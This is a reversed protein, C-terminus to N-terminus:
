HLVSALQREVALGTQLSRLAGMSSVTANIVTLSQIVQGDLDNQISTLLAPPIGGSGGGAMSTQIYAALSGLDALVASDFVTNQMRLEGNLYVLREIGFSIQLGSATEFGGRLAALEEDPVPTMDEFVSSSGIAPQVTLFALALLIGARKRRITTM